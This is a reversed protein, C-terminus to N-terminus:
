FKSVLTPDLEIKDKEEDSFNVVESDLGSVNEKKFSSVFTELLVSEGTFVEDSFNNMEKELEELKEPTVKNKVSSKVEEIKKSRIGKVLENYKDQYEDVKEEEPKIKKVLEDISEKFEKAVKAFGLDILGEVEEKTMVDEGKQIEFTELSDSISDSFNTMEISSQLQKLDTMKGPVSGLFALHHLYASKDKKRAVGPSWSNVEFNKMADDLKSPVEVIAELKKAPRELKIVKGIAPITAKLEVHGITIPVDGEFNRLMDVIDKESLSPSDKSNGHLGEYAIELRKLM